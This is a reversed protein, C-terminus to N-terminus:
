PRPLGLEYLNMSPEGDVHAHLSAATFYLDGPLAESGARCLDLLHNAYYLLDLLLESAANSSRLSIHLNMVGERPLYQVGVVCPKEEAAAWIPFYARRESRNCALARLAAAEAAALEEHPLRNNVRYLDSVEQVLAPGGGALGTLEVRDSYALLERVSGERRRGGTQVTGSRHLLTLTRSLTSLVAERVREDPCLLAARARQLPLQYPLDPPDVPRHTPDM